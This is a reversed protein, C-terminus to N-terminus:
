YIEGYRLAGFFLVLFYENNKCIIIFKIFQKFFLELFNVVVKLIVEKFEFICFFKHHNMAYNVVRTEHESLIRYGFCAIPNQIIKYILKIDM